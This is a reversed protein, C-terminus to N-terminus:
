PQAVSERSLFCTVFAHGDVVWLAGRRRLEQRLDPRDSVVGVAFGAPGVGSVAATESAAALARERSWWPPFVAVVQKSNAADFKVDAAVIVGALSLAAM